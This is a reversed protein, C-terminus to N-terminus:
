ARGRPVLLNRAVLAKLTSQSPAHDTPWDADRPGATGRVNVAGALERWYYVQAKAPRPLGDVADLSPPVPPSLARALATTVESVSDSDAAAMALLVGQQMLRGEGVPSVSKLVNHRAM